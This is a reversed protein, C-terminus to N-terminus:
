KDFFVPDEFCTYEFEKAKDIFVENVFTNVKAALIPEITSSNWSEFIRSIIQILIYWSLVMLVQKFRETNRVTNTELISIVYRVLIINITPLVANILTSLSKILYRTKSIKWLIKLIFINNKFTTFLSQSNNNGM